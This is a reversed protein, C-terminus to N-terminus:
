KSACAPTWESFNCLVKKISFTKLFKNSWSFTFLVSKELALFKLTFVHLDPGSMQKRPTEDVEWPEWLPGFEERLFLIKM